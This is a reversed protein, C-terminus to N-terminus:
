IMAILECVVSVHVVLVLLVLGAVDAVSVGLVDVAFGVKVAVGVAPDTMLILPLQKLKLLWPPCFVAWPSCFIVQVEGSGDSLDDPPVLNAGPAIAPMTMPANTPKTPRGM